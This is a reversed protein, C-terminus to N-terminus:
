QPRMFFRNFSCFLKASPVLDADVFYLTITVSSSHTREVHNAKKKVIKKLGQGLLESIPVSLLELRASMFASM